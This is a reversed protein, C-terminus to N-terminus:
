WDAGKFVIKGFVWNEPSESQIRWVEVCSLNQVVWNFSTMKWVGKFFWSISDLFWGISFSFWRSFVKLIKPNCTLWGLHLTYINEWLFFFCSTHAIKDWSSKSEAKPPSEGPGTRNPPWFNPDPVRPSNNWLRFRILTLGQFGIDIYQTYVTYMYIYIINIYIYICISIHYM